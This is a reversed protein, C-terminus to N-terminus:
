CGGQGRKQKPRGRPRITSELGMRQVMRTVWGVDGFPRGRRVSCRLAELEAASEVGNVYEVWAAPREVPWGGPFPLHRKESWWQLSSWEWDTADSVLNARLPNREVYRLVVYLHTGSQIPFSKYRGQWVHGSGGYYRHYRRVHSTTLWQMWASLVGDDQPWLVLHFHNPMLCFAPVRMPVRQCADAIMDMFAQYDQQKHFVQAQGNGRNLVHYCLGGLVQRLPRPM